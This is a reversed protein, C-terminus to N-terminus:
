EKELWRSVPLDGAPDAPWRLHETRLRGEILKVKRTVTRGGHTAAVEYQGAPLRALFIPGVAAREVRRGGKADSVVVDVEAVYNGQVLSFVLKLNFEKERALLAQQEDEGIGGALVAVERPGAADAAVAGGASAGACLLAAVIWIAIRTMTEPEQSSRHM